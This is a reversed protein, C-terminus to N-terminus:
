RNCRAKLGTQKIVVCVRRKDEYAKGIQKISLVVHAKLDKQKKLDAILRLQRISKLVDSKLGGQKIIANIEKKMHKQKAMSRIEKNVRVKYGGQKIIICTQKKWFINKQRTKIEKIVELHAIRTNLETVVMKHYMAVKKRLMAEGRLVSRGKTRIEQCMRTKLFRYVIESTVLAKRNCQAQREVIEKNLEIKRGAQKIVTNVRKKLMQQKVM